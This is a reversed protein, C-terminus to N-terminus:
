AFAVQPSYSHQRLLIELVEEKLRAIRLRERVFPDGFIQHINQSIRDIRQEAEEDEPLVVLFFLFGQAEEVEAGGLPIGERSLGVVLTPLSMAHDVCSVMVIGEGLRQMNAPGARRIKERLQSGLERNRLCWDPVEEAMRCLVEEWSTAELDTLITEERLLHRLM